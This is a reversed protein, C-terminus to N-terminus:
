LIYYEYQGGKIAFVVGGGRAGGIYGMGSARKGSGSGTARLFSVANGKDTRKYIQFHESSLQELSYDSWV